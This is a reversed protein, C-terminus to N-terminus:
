AGPRAGPARESRPQELWWFAAAGEVAMVLGIVVGYAEFDGSRQWRVETDVAWAVGALALAIAGLKLLPRLLSMLTAAVRRSLDLLILAAYAVFTAGAAAWGLALPWQHRTSFLWAAFFLNGAALVLLVSAAGLVATAFRAIRQELSM